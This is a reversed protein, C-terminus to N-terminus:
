SKILNTSHKKDPESVACGAVACLFSRVENKDKGQYQTVDLEARGIKNTLPGLYKGWKEPEEPFQDQNEFMGPLYEAEEQNTQADGPIIRKELKEGMCHVYDRIAVGFSTNLPHFIKRGEYEPHNVVTLEVNYNLSTGSKAVKPRFGTTQVEYLGQPVPKPGSLDAKTLGMKFPMERKEKERRL